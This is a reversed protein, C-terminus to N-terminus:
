ERTDAATNHGNRNESRTRETQTYPTHTRNQVCASTTYYICLGCYIIKQSVITIDIKKVVITIVCALEQSVCTENLADIFVM